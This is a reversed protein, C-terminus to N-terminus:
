STMTMNKKWLREYDGILLEFNVWEFFLGRGHFILLCFCFKQPQIWNKKRERWFSLFLSDFARCSLFFSEHMCILTFIILFFIKWVLSFFFNIKLFFFAFIPFIEALICMCFYFRASFFARYSTKKQLVCLFKKRRKQM